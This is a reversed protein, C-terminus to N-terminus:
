SGRLRDPNKITIRGAREDILGLKKFRSMTRIATEVTTGVMEAIDQKTLKLDIAVGEPTKKGTQESLKILLSAIRYSVKDLAISKMAEHSVRMRDGLNQVVCYMVSPFRDLVAMFNSRSIKIVKTDEMAVANAPYPFGRIVALGGFFDTPPIIEIIIEKGEESVKTIKVKGELVIYFWDPPDGESFILDKKRHREAILYPQIERIDADSLTSFITIDPLKTM